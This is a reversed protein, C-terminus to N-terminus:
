ADASRGRDRRNREDRLRNAETETRDGVNRRAGTSGREVGLNSLRALQIANLDKLAYSRQVYADRLAAAAEAKRSAELCKRELEKIRPLTRLENAIGTETAKENAAALRARIDGDLEALVEKLELKLGDRAANAETLTMAAQYFYEPQEVLCDDLNDDDIKLKSRVEVLSARGDSDETTEERPRRREPM